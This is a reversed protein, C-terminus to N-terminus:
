PAGKAEANLAQNALADARRNLARPIIVINARKFQRLARHAEEWLPKLNAARVRYTGKLQRALLESDTRIELEVARHQAALRMGRLVAHYEAENNTALGIAEALAAIENGAEDALSVGAAARGPNGRSAGDIYLIRKAM